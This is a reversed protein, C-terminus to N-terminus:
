PPGPGSPDFREPPLAARPEPEAGARRHLPSCEGDRDQVPQGPRVLNVTREDFPGSVKRYLVMGRITREGGMPVALLAHFGEELIIERYPFDSVEAVNPVQVPQGGQIAQGIVGERPDVQLSLLAKEFKRSVNHAAVVEFAQRDQNFEYIGCADSRSLRVAHGAISSLVERLDLSASIVQSVESLARVEELSQALEQQLDAPSRPIPDPTM